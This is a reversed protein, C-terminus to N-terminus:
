LWAGNISPFVDLAISNSNFNIMVTMSSTSDGSRSTAAKPPL